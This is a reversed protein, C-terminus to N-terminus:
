RKLTTSPDGHTSCLFIVYHLEMNMVVLRWHNGLWHPFLYVKRQVKCLRNSIYETEIGSTTNHKCVGPVLIWFGFNARTSPNRTCAGTWILLGIVEDVPWSKDKFWQQAVLDQIKEKATLNATPPPAQPPSPSQPPPPAQHPPPAQPPTSVDVLKVPWSIFTGKVDSVVKLEDTPLPVPLSFNVETVEMPEPQKTEKTTEAKAARKREQPQHSPSSEPMDANNTPSRIKLNLLVGLAQMIRQDKMYLNLHHPNRSHGRLLLLPLRTAAVRAYALSSKLPENDPDIELGKNYAAIAADYQCLCLHTAGLRSYGKSWDPKLDVTKKANTLTKYYERQDHNNPPLTIAKSFHHIVTSFDSSSFTTNGKAKAKDAM